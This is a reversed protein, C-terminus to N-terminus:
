YNCKVKLFFCFFIILFINFYLFDSKNCIHIFILSSKSNNKLYNM